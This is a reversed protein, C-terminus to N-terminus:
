TVEQAQRVADKCHGQRYDREGLEVRCGSHVKQFAFKMM